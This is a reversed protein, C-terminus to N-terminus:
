HRGHLVSAAQPPRSAPKLPPWSQGTCPPPPTTHLGLRPPHEESVVLAWRHHSGEGGERMWSRNDIQPYVNTLLLENQSGTRGM